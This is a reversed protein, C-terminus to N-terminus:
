TTVHVHACMCVSIHVCMFLYLDIQKCVCVYMGVHMCVYARPAHIRKPVKVYRSMFMHMKICVSMYMYM